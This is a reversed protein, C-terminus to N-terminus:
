TTVMINIYTTTYTIKIVTQHIHYLILLHIQCKSVVFCFLLLWRRCIHLRGRKVIVLEFSHLKWGFSHCASREVSSLTVKSVHSAHFQFSWKRQHKSTQLCGINNTQHKPRWPLLWRTMSGEFELLFIPCKKKIRKAGGYCGCFHRNFQSLDPSPHNLSGLSITNRKVKAFICM